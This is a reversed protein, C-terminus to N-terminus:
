NKPPELFSLVFLQPTFARDQSTHIVLALPSQINGDDPLVFNTELLHEDFTESSGQSAPFGVDFPTRVHQSNDAVYHVGVMCLSVWLILIMWCPLKRISKDM